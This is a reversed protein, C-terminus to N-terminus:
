VAAKRLAAAHARAQRDEPGSGMMRCLEDVVETETLRAVDTVTNSDDSIKSVVFHADAYCAIQPLHTICVIQADRALKKLKAGVALGTKGGIGADIEDFLLTGAGADPAASKIALMIRSLEGGSATKRVPEAPMGPNLDALFEVADAGAPALHAAALNSDGGERGSLGIKLSAKPFALERLHATVERELRKAAAQRMQRLKVALRVAEEEAAQLDQRLTLLDEQSASARSLREGCGSAYALVAEIDGGYKRKLEALLELREEVAALAAPDLEVAETYSRADRGTEELEFFSTKLRALLDDFGKDIGAAAELRTMAGALEEMVGAAEPAAGLVGALHGAAEQLEKARLLRRRKADLTADEGPVPAASEIEQLQFAILQAEQGSSEAARVVTELREGLDALRQYLLGYEDRLALLDRGGFRDLIDLQNSSMMLRRQEHQGSFRLCSGALQRLVGMGVAHGGAYGRSRGDRFLRRRVILQGDEPVDFRDALPSFFGPPMSFVAEVSAEATGPRILGNDVRAGLLLRTAHALITKGTGTEGTIVNLGPAFELRAAGIVALNEISLETLM